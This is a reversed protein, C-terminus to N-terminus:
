FLRDGALYLRSEDDGHAVRVIRMKVKRAHMIVAILASEGDVGALHLRCLREAEACESRDIRWINPRKETYKFVHHPIKACLQTVAFFEATSTPKM